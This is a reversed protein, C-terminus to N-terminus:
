LFVRPSQSHFPIEKIMELFERSSYEVQHEDVILKEEGRGEAVLKEMAKRHGFVTWLFAMTPKISSSVTDGIKWDSVTGCCPCTNVLTEESQSPYIKDSGDRYLTTGCDHCYLGAAYRKGIHCQIDYQAYIHNSNDILTGKVVALGEKWYFNTSM